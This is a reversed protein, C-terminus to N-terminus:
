LFYNFNVKKKNSNEKILLFATLGIAIAILFVWDGQYRQLAM